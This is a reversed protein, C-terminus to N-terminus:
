RNEHAQGELAANFRRKSDAEIADFLRRELDVPDVGQSLARSLASFVEPHAAIQAFIEGLREVSPTM